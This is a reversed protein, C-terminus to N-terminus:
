TGFFSNGFDVVSQFALELAFFDDKLDLLM